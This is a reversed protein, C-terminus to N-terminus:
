TGRACTVHPTYAATRARRSLTGMACTRRRSFLVLARLQGARPPPRPPLRPARAVSTLACACACPSLAARAEAAAMKFEGAKDMDADSLEGAEAPGMPPPADTDATM